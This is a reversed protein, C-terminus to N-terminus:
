SPTVNQARSGHEHATVVARLENAPGLRATRLLNPPAARIQVPSPPKASLAPVYKKNNRGAKQDARGRRKGQHKPAITGFTNGRKDVSRCGGIRRRASVFRLMPLPLMLRREASRRAATRLTRQAPAAGARWGPPACAGSATRGRTEDSPSTRCRGSKAFGEPCAAASSNAHLSAPRAAIDSYFYM